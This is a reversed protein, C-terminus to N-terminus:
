RPGQRTSQIPNKYSSPKDVRSAKLTEVEAGVLFKAEGHHLRLLSHLERFPEGYVVSREPTIGLTLTSSFVRPVQRSSQVLSPPSLPLFDVVEM